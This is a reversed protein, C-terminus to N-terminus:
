SAEEGAHQSYQDTRFEAENAVNLGSFTPIARSILMLPTKNLFTLGGAHSETQPSNTVAFQTYNVSHDVGFDFNNVGLTNSLSANWNGNQRGRWNAPFLGSYGNQDFAFLRNPDLGLSQATYSGAATSISLPHRYTGAAEGNKRSYGGFIKM